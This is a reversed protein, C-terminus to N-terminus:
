GTLRAIAWSAADRVIEEPHAEAIARLAPLAGVDGARGLALCANRALGVPGARFLPTGEALEEWRPGGELGIRALDVLGLQKWREHPAFTDAFRGPPREKVNHPCVEQCVDCGFLRESVAERLPEPIAGPIEITWTSICRGADLVFPRVFAKTPCADLCRTCQGCREELPEDPAIELTTVVEGLLTYSGQGPTIILGNKALFGVGARAAWARELVPATDIMPRAQVDDGLTRVFTALKRLAKRIRNHYDRGRAYRAIGRALAPVDDGDRQEYRVAVVIVSRAGALIDAGDLRHRAEVNEALYALPGQLGAALAAEYRAFEPELAVDARAVGVAAFGLTAAQQEVLARAEERTPAEQASPATPATPPRPTPM